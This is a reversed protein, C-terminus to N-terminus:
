SLGPNGPDTFIRFNTLRNKGFFTLISKSKHMLIFVGKRVVITKKKRYIYSFLLILYVFYSIRKHLITLSKHCPCGFWYRLNRFNTLYHLAVFFVRMPICDQCRYYQLLSSQKFYYMNYWYKKRRIKQRTYGTDQDSLCTMLCTIHERLICFMIAWLTLFLTFM